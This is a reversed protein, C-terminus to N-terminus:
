SIEFLNFFNKSLFIPVLKSVNVVFKQFIKDIIKHFKRSFKPAVESTPIYSSIPISKLPLKSLIPFHPISRKYVM